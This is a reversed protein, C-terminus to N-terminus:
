NVLVVTENKEFLDKGSYIIHLSPDNYEIEYTRRTLIVTKGGTGQRAISDLSTVVPIPHKLAFVYAPNFQKYGIIERDPFRNRIFSLSEVVPNRKDIQPSILYFFVLSTGIWAAVNAYIFGLKNSRFLLIWGVLAGVPLICLYFSLQKLSSLNSEAQLVLFAAFPLTVAILMHVAIAIHATLNTRQTELFSNLYYGLVAALFPIAPAPYSPLITKSFTFFVAVVAIIIMCYMLFTNENRRVALRCAQIIFMSFPLLSVILIMVPALFFGGHGEMTSTYRSFNHSIFFGELWKGGTAYGVAAYWPVTILLFLLTGQWLKIRKVLYWSMQHIYILYSFIVLAPLVVAILGKTLFALAASVYMLYFHRPNDHFGTYFSLFCLTMLLILYPDPVALHFQVAMQLSSLLILCSLFAVNENVITRIKRYLFAVLLVGCLASFFRAAFPTIGFLSFSFMMSFYHLPPKDTRLLNNFTPVILDKRSYMEMACGANKAEDLVYISTGGLNSFYVVVALLILILFRKM